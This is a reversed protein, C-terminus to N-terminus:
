LLAVLAPVKGKDEFPSHPLICNIILPTFMNDAQTYFVPPHPVPFAPDRIGWTYIINIGPFIRLHQDDAPSICECQHVDGREAFHQKLQIFVVIDGVLPPDGSRYTRGCFLPISVKSGIIRGQQFTEGLMDNSGVKPECFIRQATDFAFEKFIASYKQERKISFTSM